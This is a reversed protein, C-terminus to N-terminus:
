ILDERKDPYPSCYGDRHLPEKCIACRANDQDWQAYHHKSLEMARQM